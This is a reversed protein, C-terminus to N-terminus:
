DVPYLDKKRLWGRLTKGQPNKYVIYIFGNREAWPELLAYRWHILFDPQRTRVDPGSHFYAKDAVKYRTRTSGALRPSTTLKTAEQKEGAPYGTTESFYFAESEDISPDLEVDYTDSPGAGAKKSGKEPQENLPEEPVVPKLVSHRAVDAAKDRHRINKATPVAPARNPAAAAIDPRSVLTLYVLTGLCIVFLGGLIM